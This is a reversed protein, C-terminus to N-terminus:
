TENDVEPFFYRYAGAEFTIGADLNWKLSTIHNTFSPDRLFYLTLSIFLELSM